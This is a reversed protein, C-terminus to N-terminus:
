VRNGKQMLLGVVNLNLQVIISVDSLSQAFNLTHHDASKLDDLYKAPMVLMRLGYIKM